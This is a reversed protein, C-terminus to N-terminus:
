IEERLWIISDNDKEWINESIVENVSAWSEETAIILEDYFEIMEKSNEEAFSDYIKRISASIRSLVLAKTDEDFGELEDKLDSKLTKQDIVDRGEGDGLVMVSVSSSAGLIIEKLGEDFKEENLMEKLQDTIKNRISNDCSQRFYTNLLFLQSFCMRLNKNKIHASIDELDSVLYDFIIYFLHPYKVTTSKVNELVEVLLEISDKDEM